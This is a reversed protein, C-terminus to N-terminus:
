KKLKKKLGTQQWNACIKFTDSNRGRDESNTSEYDKIADELDKLNQTCSKIDVENKNDLKFYIFLAGAGIVIGLILGISLTIFDM